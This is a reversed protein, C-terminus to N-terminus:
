LDGIDDRCTIGFECSACEKGSQDAYPRRPLRGEMQARFLNTCLKKTSEIIPKYVTVHFSITDHTDVNEYVLLGDEVEMLWANIMVEIVHKKAAGERVVRDYDKVPHIQVVMNKGLAQIVYDIDGRINYVCDFARYQRELIKVGKCKGLFDGWKRIECLLNQAKMYPMSEFDKPSQRVRYILRRPCETIQSSSFLSDPVGVNRRRVGEEILEDFQSALKDHSVFQTKDTM